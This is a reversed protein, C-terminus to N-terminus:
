HIFRCGSVIRTPLRYVRAYREVWYYDFTHYKYKIDPKSNWERYAQIQLQRTTM